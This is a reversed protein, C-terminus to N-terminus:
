MHVSTKNKCVFAEWYIFARFSSFKTPLERICTLNELFTVLFHLWTAVIIFMLLFIMYFPIISGCLCVLHTWVGGPKLVNCLLAPTNTGIARTAWRVTQEESSLLFFFTSIYLNVSNLHLRYYDVSWRESHFSINATFFFSIRRMETKRLIQSLVLFCKLRLKNLLM